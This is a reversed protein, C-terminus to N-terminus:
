YDNLENQVPDRGPQGAATRETNLIGKMQKRLDSFTIKHGPNDLNWQKIKDNWFEARDSPDLKAYAAVLAYKRNNAFQKYESDTQSKEAIRAEQATRFGVLHSLAAGASPETITAGAATKKGVTGAQYADFANNFIKVPVLKAIDDMRGTTFATNLQGAKDAVMEAAAGLQSFGFKAFDGKDMSTWDPPDHLILDSLGMRSSMDFGFARPLGGDIIEATKGDGALAHVARRAMNDFSYYEDNDGVLKHYAYMVARLPEIGFGRQVGAFLSTGVMMGAVVKLAEARGGEAEGSVADYVHSYLLHAMGTVYSKFMTVSNGGWVRGVARFARSKNDQSYDIHTERVFDGARYVDGKHLELAAVGTSVRNFIDAMSPLIRAWQMVRNVYPSGGKAATAMQNSLSTHIIGRDILQQLPSDKGGQAWKSFHPDKAVAALIANQISDVNHGKSMLVARYTERFAPGSIMNMARAFTAMSKGYGFRAGAAPIATSFNQTLYILAHSMSTMYNLFGLKAVTSNFPQHSGYQETEQRLRRQIEDYVRGRQSAVDQKQTADKTAERLKGLAEGVKFVTSMHGTNWALSQAHTAFNRGMEEPKVGGVNRRALKSGAYASRAAMLNVFANRLSEKLDKGTEDDGLRRSAEAVINQMGSSLPANHESLIKQTVSGVDHGQNRLREVEKDAEAPSNHMSVYEAKYDVQWADGVEAVTAKSGPSLARIKSAYAEAKAQDTFTKTGEPTIQVVHDGHRGLHFYDGEIESTSSLDKLADILNDNRDGVDIEKGKGILADFGKHPETVSYLLQRKAKPIDQDSFSDLAVDVGAKRNARIAKENWDRERTYIDRQADTLNKWRAAMEAKVAPFDKAQTVKLPMESDARLPSVGTRQVDHQFQGLAKNDTYSLKARDNVIPEASHAMRNIIANRQQILDDYHRLPNTGDNHGFVGRRLAARVLGDYPTLARVTRRITEVAGSRVSRRFLKAVETTSDGVVGRFEDEHQMGPPPDELKQIQDLRDDLGPMHYEDDNSIARSQNRLRDVADPKAKLFDPATVHEFDPRSSKQAKMLGEIANFSDNLLKTSRPDKIGLMRMIAQKAREFIGRLGQAHAESDKLFQQFVPNSVVEAAFEHVNTLGYPPTAGTPDMALSRKQAEHLLDSMRQSFEGNPNRNLEYSTAAHVPEHILAHLSAYPAHDVLGAAEPVRIQITKTGPDHAGAGGLPEGTRPNIVETVPRIPLDPAHARIKTIVDVMAGNGTKKALNILHDLVRHTGLFGGKAQVESVKKWFGTGELAKHLAGMPSSEAIKRFEERSEDVGDFHDEHNQHEENPDYEHGKLEDEDMTDSMRKPRKSELADARQERALALINDAFDKRGPGYVDHLIRELNDHAGGVDDDGVRNYREIAAAIKAKEGANLIKPKTEDEVDPIVKVKEAEAAKEARKAKLKEAMTPKPPEAAAAREKLIRAKLKEAKPQVPAANFELQKGTLNGLVRKLERAHIDMAKHSVGQGKSMAETSKMDLRAVENATTIADSAIRPDVDPKAALKKIARATEGLSSARDSVSAPFKKGPPVAESATFRDLVEQAAATTDGPKSEQPISPEPATAPKEEATPEITGETSKKFLEAPVNRVDKSLRGEDDVTRVPVKNDVAGGDVVVPVDEKGIRITRRDGQKLPQPEDSTAEIVPKAQESPETPISGEHEVLAARRAVADEPTTVVPEHGAAKVAEVAAPVDAPAVASEKVVAGEPTQGQVVATQDPAKGEGAGTLKGLTAQMDDGNAKRLATAKSRESHNVSILAGGNRDFNNTVVAGDALKKVGEIGGLNAVNDASLYVHKRDTDSSKMDAVQAKLDSPPEASPKDSVVQPSTTDNSGPRTAAIAADAALTNSKLEVPPAGAIEGATKVPLPAKGPAVVPNSEHGFPMGSDPASPPVTVPKANEQPVAPPPPPEGTGAPGPAPTVELDPSKSPPDAKKVYPAVKPTHLIGFITQMLSNIGLETPNLPDVKAVAEQYTENQLIHRALVEAAKGAQDLVDGAGVWKAIRKVINPDKFGVGLQATTTLGNILALAVATKTNDGADVSTKGANVTSNAAIVAPGAPGLMMPAVGEAVSGLTKAAANTDGTNKWYDYATDVHNKIFNFIADSRKSTNEDVDLLENVGAAAFGLTRATAVAARMVGNGVESGLAKTSRLLDSGIGQTDKVPIAAPGPEPPTSDVIPQAGPGPEAPPLSPPGGQTVSNTVSTQVGPQPPPPPALMSDPFRGKLGAAAQSRADDLVKETEPDPMPVAPM